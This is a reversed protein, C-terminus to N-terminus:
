HTADAHVVKLLSSSEVAKQILNSDTSIAKLRNFTILVEIPVDIFHYTCTCTVHHVHSTDIVVACESEKLKQHLFNSRSLNM